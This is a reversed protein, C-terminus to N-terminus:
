TDNHHGLQDGQTNYLNGEPGYYGTQLWTSNKLPELMVGMKGGSVMELEFENLEAEGSLVSQLVGKCEDVTFDFGNAQGLAVLDEHTDTKGLAEQIETNEAVADRFALASEKSM